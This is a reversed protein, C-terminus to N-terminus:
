PAFPALDVGADTLASRVRRAIGVAGPTDGHVCISRPALLLPGGDVDTIERGTAMAVCRAAIEDADHLV